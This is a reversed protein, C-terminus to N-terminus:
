PSVKDRLENEFGLTGDFIQTSSQDVIIKMHPNGNEYLWDIIPKVAEKLKDIDM